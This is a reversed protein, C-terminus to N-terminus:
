YDAPCRARTQRRGARRPSRAQRVVSRTQRWESPSLRARAAHVPCSDRRPGQRCQRRGSERGPTRGAVRHEKEGARLQPRDREGVAGEPIKGVDSGWRACGPKRVTRDQKRRLRCTGDPAKLRVRDGVCRRKPWAVAGVDKRRERADSVIEDVRRNGVVATAGNAENVISLFAIQQDRRPVPLDDGPVQQDDTVVYEDRLLHAREPSSSPRLRGITVPTPTVAAPRFRNTAEGRTVSAAAEDVRARSSAQNSALPM